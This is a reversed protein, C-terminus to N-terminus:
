NYVRDIVLLELYVLLFVGTPSVFALLSVTELGVEIFLWALSIGSAILSRLANM